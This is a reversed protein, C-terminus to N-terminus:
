VRSFRFKQHTSHRSKFECSRKQESPDCGLKNVLELVGWMLLIPWDGLTSIWLEKISEETVFSNM